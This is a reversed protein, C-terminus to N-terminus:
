LFGDAKLAAILADSHSLQQAETAYKRSRKGFLKLTEPNNQLHQIKLIMDKFDGNKFLSGNYGDVVDDYPGYSGITNSIVAPVGLYIAESIALSHRDHRAPHLYFDCAAYYAPLETPNIFGTFIIQHHKLKKANEKLQNEYSGTGIIFCVIKKHEPNDILKLAEIIDNQGKGDVLKGVTSCVFHDNAIQHKEKIQSKLSEKEKFAKEYSLIDIPFNMRTLQKSKVGHVQYYFENASGVTLFRNVKKFYNKILFSKFFRRFPNEPFNWESDSIYYLKKKSNFVWNKIERQFKHAYGYSIVVDPNYSKLENLLAGASEKLSVKVAEDNKFYHDFKDLQLNDWAITKGFSKDAYAKYGLASM